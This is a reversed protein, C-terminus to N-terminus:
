TEARSDVKEDEEESEEVLWGNRIPERLVYAKYVEEPTLCEGDPGAHNGELTEEASKDLMLSTGCKDVRELSRKFSVSVVHLRGMEEKFFAILESKDMGFTIPADVVSSYVLYKDKLKIISWGMDFGEESHAPEGYSTHRKM